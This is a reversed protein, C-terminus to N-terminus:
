KISLVGRLSEILAMGFGVPKLEDNFLRRCELRYGVWEHKIAMANAKDSSHGKKEYFAAQIAVLKPDPIWVVEDVQLIQGKWNCGQVATAHAQVSVLMCMLIIVIKLNM